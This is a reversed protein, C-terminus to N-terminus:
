QGAVPTRRFVDGPSAPRNSASLTFLCDFYPQVDSWSKRQRYLAVLNRSAEIAEPAGSSAQGIMSLRLDQQDHVHGDQLAYSHFEVISGPKPFQATPGCQQSTTAAEREVHGVAFSDQVTHLVSGFAVDDLNRSMKDVRGLLYLDTVTWGSCGFRDKIVPININRLLMDPKFAGTAVGWAFQIWQLVETRTVDAPVGDATSMSHLFQLDGFHSRTMLNGQVMGKGKARAPGACGVIRRSTSRQQADKFLCLWCYPQTSFRITQSTDCAPSGILPTKCMRAENAELRFPPLDNWRVGYIVFANAFPADGGACSRDDLLNAVESPCAFALQTIEEHVPDKILRGLISAARALSSESENTLRAEFKSGLPAIQFAAVSRISAPSSWLTIALVYVLARRM